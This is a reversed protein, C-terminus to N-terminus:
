GRQELGDLILELVFAFGDEPEASDIHARVHEVVHPYQDSPLSALFGEAAADLDGDVTFAQEQLTFGVVHNNLAHFGVHALDPPLGSYNLTRLVAEMHALRWPGPKRTSWLSTAWPHRVLEAQMSLATRRLEDKWPGSPDPVDIGAAVLDVMGDLLDEKNAVYHYLSMVEFGVETALRRMSLADVGERDALEFASSLVRDRTLQARLGSGRDAPM